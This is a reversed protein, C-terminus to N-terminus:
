TEGTRGCCPSSSRSGEEPAYFLGNAGSSRHTSMDLVHGLQSWQISGHCTVSSQRLGQYLLPSPHHIPLAMKVNAAALSASAYRLANLKMGVKKLHGGAALPGNDDLQGLPLFLLDAVCLLSM